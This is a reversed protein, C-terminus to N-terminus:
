SVEEFDIGNYRGCSFCYDVNGMCVVCFADVARFYYDKNDDYAVCSFGDHEWTVANGYPILQRDDCFKKFVSSVLKFNNINATKM